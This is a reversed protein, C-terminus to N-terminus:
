ISDPLLQSSQANRDGGQLDIESVRVSLSKKDVGNKDTYERESLEGVVTVKTGKVLYEQLASGRKGWVSCDLWITQKKDGYGIDSAVSFGTVTTEGVSRTEADKGLRGTVTLSNMSSREQKLTKFLRSALNLLRGCPLEVCVLRDTGGALNGGCESLSLTTTM